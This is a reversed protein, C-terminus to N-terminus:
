EDCFDVLVEKIAETSQAQRLFRRFDDKQLNKFIVQAPFPHPCIGNEILQNYRKNADDVKVLVFNADTPYIKKVYLLSNLNRILNEREILIQDVDQKVSQQELLVEM